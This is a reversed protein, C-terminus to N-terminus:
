WKDLIILGMVREINKRANEWARHDGPTTGFTLDELERFEPLPQLKDHGQNTNEVYGHRSLLRAVARFPNNSRAARRLDERFEDLGHSMPVSTLRKLIERTRADIGERDAQALAIASATRIRDSFEGQYLESGLVSSLAMVLFDRGRLEDLQRSVDDLQEKLQDNKVRWAEIEENYLAELEAASLRGRERKRYAQIAREQLDVWDWGSASMQSRTTRCAVLTEGMLADLSPVEYGLYLRRVFGRGPVSIGITGGYVNRGGVKKRLGLSFMRNPEICVHAVGGLDFAIKNLEDQSLICGPENPASVYVVPLCRSAAGDVIAAALALGDSNDELQHIADSVRIRGDLDGLGDQLLNKIFFPKKPDDLRAGPSVAICQTRVRILDSSDGRRAVIETRWLRGRDHPPDYRLGYGSEEDSSGFERVWLQEGSASCFYSEDRDLSGESQDDFLRSYRTGRLWAIVQAVFQPRTLPSIPFETAFVTM